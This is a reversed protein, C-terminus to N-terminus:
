KNLEVNIKEIMELAIRKQYKMKDLMTKMEKNSKWTYNRFRPSKIYERFALEYERKRSTHFETESKNEFDIFDITDYLTIFSEPKYITMGNEKDWELYESWTNYEKTYYENIDIFVKNFSKSEVFGSGTMKLFTSNNIKYIRAAHFVKSIVYFLSDIPLTNVKDLNFLDEQLLLSNQFRDIGAQFTTTDAILDKKINNLNTKSLNHTNRNENWNNISLAILIGIVVLIIEGFAYKLYRGTKNEM